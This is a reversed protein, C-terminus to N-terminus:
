SKAAAEKKPRASWPVAAMLMTVTGGAQEIKERASASVAHVEVTMRKTLEGRGLIKLGDFSGRVLGVNRLVAENIITGEDFANLDDLNVFAVKKKFANNNFGRKPLRRILPM